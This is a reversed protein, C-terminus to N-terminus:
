VLEYKSGAWPVLAMEGNEEIFRPKCIVDKIGTILDDADVTALAPDAALDVLDLLVEEEVLGTRPDTALAVTAVIHQEIAQRQFQSLM